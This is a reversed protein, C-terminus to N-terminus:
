LIAQFLLVQPNYFPIWPREKTIIHFDAVQRRHASGCSIVANTIWAIAWVMDLFESM